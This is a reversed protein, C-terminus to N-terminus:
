QEEKGRRMERIRKPMALNLREREDQNLTLIYNTADSAEASEKVAAEIKSLKDDAKVDHLYLGTVIPLGIIAAIMISLIEKGGFKIVIGAFSFTLYPRDAIRQEQQEESLNSM